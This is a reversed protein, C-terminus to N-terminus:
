RRGSKTPALLRPLALYIALVMLLGAGAAARAPTSGVVSVAGLGACLATLAGITASVCVHSRGLAVLWQYVHRKHPLQWPEGARVRRVITMGTDALYLALPAVAAELPLGEAVALLSMAAFIAGLGYSGVDGLFVLARPVNYPAFGVAASAAVLGLVTLPDSDVVRGLLAYACGGVIATAASIGNIGDMFNVANVVALTWPLGVLLILTGSFDAPLGAFALAALLALAAVSTLLLRPVIPVGRVDELAGVGAAILIGVLLGLALLSQAVLVGVLVGAMVAIGGGRPTPVTHNSRHGPFDLIGRRKLRRIVAPELVLTVSFALLSATFM